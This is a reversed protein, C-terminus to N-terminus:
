IEQMLAQIQAESKIIYTPSEDNKRVYIKGYATWCYKYGKSKVLDRALFHLRAGKATLQESVFIPTDENNKFGLHKACLKVKQKVNHAKCMKLIDTKLLSSSIEVIIPTNTAGQRKGKIRYIDKIDRKAIECNINKTLCLVMNILDEKTEQLKKPVNKIELNSKRSGRQLDEVKEELITIYEKDKKAQCEMQEMKKKLEENQATLYAVSSEINSNTRKIEMLTPTIKKLENEQVLLMSKIINIMDEKLEELEDERRRRGGRLAVYDNPPTTLNSESLSKDM